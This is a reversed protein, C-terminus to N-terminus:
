SKKLIRSIIATDVCGTGPNIGQAVHIWDIGRKRDMEINDEWLVNLLLM